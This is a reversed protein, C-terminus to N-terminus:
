RRPMPPPVPQCSPGPAASSCPSIRPATPIGTPQPLRPLPPLAATIAVDLYDHDINISVGNYTETVGGTYQHVRHHNTWLNAPIIPENTDAAGNWNAFDVVDPLLFTGASAASVLDTIGSGSSSYYGSAYGLAHVEATWASEFALANATQDPQYAEMDYYLPTSPGFGLAAAQAVADDAAQRGLSAPNAPPKLEGFTAQPGVYLPLFHWGAAAQQAVWAATLNPQPCARDGGGIYVGVARYPSSLWANMNSASPAACADFGKGTYNTASLGVAPPSASPTAADPAAARPAAGAPAPRAPAAVRPTGFGAGRVIRAALGRDHGYAATVTIGDAGATIQRAVPNDTSGSAATVPQVLVAETRGVAHAPCDQEASPTGLYLAHRDFRVCARPNATLDVVLWGGPVTFTRGLYKVSRQDGANANSTLFLALVIAAAACTGVAIWRLPRRM